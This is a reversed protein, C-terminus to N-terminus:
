GNAFAILASSPEVNLASMVEMCRTAVAKAMTIRGQTTLLGCLELARSEDLPEAAIALDLLRAAEDLDGRAMSDAAVLDALSVFRRQLRARALTAWDEYLDGPLLDGTYLALAHRARGVREDDNASLAAAAAAEFAIADVALNEDLRLTEGDRVVVPGSREKLRNLLNRMRSRGTTVEADPWLEDIAVEVTM